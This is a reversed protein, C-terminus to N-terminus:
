GKAFLADWDPVLRANEIDDFPLAQHKGDVDIIITADEEGGEPPQRVAVLRGKFNRRADLGAHLRVKAEQGLFRRFHALTRLPRDLGPSSVELNYAQGIPDEVDLVASLERSVRECDELGVGPLGVGAEDVFGPIGARSVDEETVLHEEPVAPAPYDIFVRLVWGSQSQTLLLDVLECGAGACVPETIEMLKQRTTDTPRM